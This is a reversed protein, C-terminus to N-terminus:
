FNWTISSKGYWDCGHNDRFETVIEKYVGYRHMPPTATLFQEFTIEGTGDKDCLKMISEIKDNAAEESYGICKNL